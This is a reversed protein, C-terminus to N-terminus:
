KGALRGMWEARQRDIQGEKQTKLSETKEGGRKGKRSGVM